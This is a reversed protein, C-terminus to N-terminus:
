GPSSFEQRRRGDLQAKAPARSRLRTLLAQLATSAQEHAAHIRARNAEDYFYPEDESWERGDHEDERDIRLLPCILKKVFIRVRGTHPGTEFSMLVVPRHCNKKSRIEILQCRLPLL